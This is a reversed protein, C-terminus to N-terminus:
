ASPAHTGRRRRSRRKRRGGVGVAVVVGSTVVRLEMDVGTVRLWAARFGPLHRDCHDFARHVPNDYDDTTRRHKSAM